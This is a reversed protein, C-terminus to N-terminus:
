EERADRSRPSPTLGSDVHVLCVLGISFHHMHDVLLQLLDVENILTVGDIPFAIVAGMQHRVAIIDQFSNIQDTSDNWPLLDALVSLCKSLHVLQDGLTSLAGTISLSPCSRSSPFM